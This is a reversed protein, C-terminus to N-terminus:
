QVDEEKKTSRKGESGASVARGGETLRYKQRSSMPKDTITMDILGADLAPRLYNARFTPRHKLKLITRLTGSSKDGDALVSLLQQVPERFMRRVGSGWQEILDLERFVRAIVHNRVESVGQLMDEINICFILIGPSEIETRNDYLYSRIPSGIQVAPLNM